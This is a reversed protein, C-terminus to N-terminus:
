RTPMLTAWIYNRKRFYHNGVRQGAAKIQSVVEPHRLAREGILFFTAKRRASSSIELVELTFIPIHATTSPFRL